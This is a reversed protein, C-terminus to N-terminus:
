QSSLPSTWPMADISAGNQRCLDAMELVSSILGSFQEDNKDLACELKSVANQIEVSESLSDRKLKKLMTRLPGTDGMKAASAVDPQSADQGYQVDVGQVPLPLRAESDIQLVRELVTIVQPDFQSPANLKLEEIANEDNRANRYPSENTMSDFADCVSIIRCALSLVPQYTELEELGKGCDYPTAYRRLIELLDPSALASRAIAEGIQHRQQMIESQERDLPDPLRLISDPVGLKGLDHLLAAVCVLELVEPGMIRSAVSRALSAVRACHLATRADRYYMATYLASIASYSDVARLGEHSDGESRKIEDRQAAYQQWTVVQNRGNKKAAYLSQDAQELLHQRDAAHFQRASVGISLTVDVSKIPSQSVTERIQEALEVVKSFEWNPIAICFEEGGYRCVVGDDGTINLLVQSVGKIVDDGVSHGYNDNISKFHDIDVMVINLSEVDNSQWLKEFTEFFSRRNHCGSMPDRSALFKLHDNQRRIEDRSARLINLMKSMENRREELATVDDFSALVGRCRDGLGKIPSVNVAFKRRKGNGPQFSIMKGRQAGAGELCANWPFSVTREDDAPAAASSELEWSFQDPSKGLLDEPTKGVIEGFARNVLVIRGESDLLFLGEILSDFALRVQSPVARCPNLQILSRSLVFWSVLAFSAGCFLTLLMPNRAIGWPGPANLPLFCVELQCQASMRPFDITYTDAVSASLNEVTVRDQPHSPSGAILVGDERIGISHIDPNRSVLRTLVGDWSPKVHGQARHPLALAINECFQFRRQVVAETGDPVFHFAYAGWIVSGALLGLCIAIQGATKIMYTLHLNSAPHKKQPAHSSSALHPKRWYVRLFSLPAALDYTTVPMFRAKENFVLAPAHKAVFSLM